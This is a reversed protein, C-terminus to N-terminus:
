EMQTQEAPAFAWTFRMLLVIMTLNVRNPIKHSFLKEAYTSRMWLIPSVAGVLTWRLVQQSLGLSCVFVSNVALRQRENARYEHLDQLNGLNEIYIMIVFYRFTVYNKMEYNASNPFRISNQNLYRLYGLIGYNMIINFLNNAHIQHPDYIDM